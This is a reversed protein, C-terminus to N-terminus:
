LATAPSASGGGGSGQPPDLIPRVAGTVAEKEDDTLTRGPGDAIRVTVERHAFHIGNKEFLERIRAYVVKRVMFQDGPKTMFKVRIIMASDEMMYVGQSKLPEMFKDGIEPHELLEQGLKKVLKRVKEPDTDYTLRLPLKMMVWDRSYNTLSTIEGFPVTHLLGLQHRLQMSRISIKEVTGRIGNIDIYEGKRFADDLLFFAGSFIDRILTQAGFGVALGVVGAGAFLPAIDIGLESLTVMGAIAVIMALLFNRFIPLLTALRSTGAGGGEGSDENREEEAAPSELAIRDDILIKVSQYALYAVFLVIVIEAVGQFAENGAISGATWSDAVFLLVTVAIVAAGADEALEKFGRRRVPQEAADEGMEMLGRRQFFRDVLLLLIAYASFGFVLGLLPDLILGIAGPLHLLLRVASVAWAGMLYVVAIVHWLRALLRWAIGAEEPRDGLIAQGIPQRHRIAIASFMISVALGAAIVILHHPDPEIGLMDTLLCVVGVVASLWTVAAFSHYLSRAEADPLRIMRHSPADPAILARFIVITVRALVTGLLTLVMTNRWPPAEPAFGVILLGAVAAQIAVSVTMLVARTLLYSIKESRNAPEPHFLTVFYQAAWRDWLRSVGYGVLLLVAALGFAQIPWWPSVSHIEANRQVKDALYAPLGPAVTLVQALARRAARARAEIGTTMSILDSESAADAPQEPATPPVLIVQYGEEKAAKLLTEISSSGATEGKGAALVSAAQARAHGAGLSGNLAVGILLLTLLWGVRVLYGRM